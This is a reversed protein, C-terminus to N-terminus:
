KGCAAKGEEMLKIIKAGDEGYDAAMAAWFPPLKERFAAVQEAPVEIISGGSQTHMGRLVDEFAFIEDMVAKSSFQAFARKVAAQDEESLRELVRQSMAFMAPGNSYNYESVVPYVKNLGSPIYFTYVTPYVDILGTSASSAAEGPSVPVPNAGLTKWYETNIRNVSIGIKLGKLDDPSAIERDSVLYGNGVEAWTGFYVGKSSLRARIEDTLHNDQVCARQDNSDYYGYLQMLGIEPAQQAGANVTFLGMEIRGRALQAMTDNETGLQSNFYPEVKLRGESETAIAEALRIIQAGWPTKEPAATALKLVTEAHAATMSAMAFVGVTAMTKLFKM